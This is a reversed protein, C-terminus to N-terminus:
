KKARKSRMATYLKISKDEKLKKYAESEMSFLAMKGEANFHVGWGYRKPLTSARFCAQPKSFFLNREDSNNLRNKRIRHVEFLVDDSTFKYPNVFIMEYQLLPISKNEGKQKPIEAKSVPCDEAVEIFSNYYNTTKM